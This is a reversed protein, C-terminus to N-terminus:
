LFMDVNSLKNNIKGAVTHVESLDNLRESRNKFDDYRHVIVFLLSFANTRAKKCRSRNIAISGIYPLMFLTMSTEVVSKSFCIWRGVFVIQTELSEQPSFCSFGAADLATALYWLSRRHEVVFSAFSYLKFIDVDSYGDGNTFVNDRDFLSLDSFVNQWSSDDVLADPKSAASVDCKPPSKTVWSCVFRSCTLSYKQIYINM